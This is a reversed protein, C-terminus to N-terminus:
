TPGGSTTAHGVIMLQVKSLRRPNTSAPGDSCARGPRPAHRRDGSHMSVLYHCVPSSSQTVPSTRDRIHARIRMVVTALLLAAPITLLSDHWLPNLHLRENVTGIVRTFM